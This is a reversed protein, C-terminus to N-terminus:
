ILINVTYIYVGKLKKIEETTRSFLNIRPQKGAILSGDSLKYSNVHGFGGEGLQEMFDPFEAMRIDSIQDLEEKTMLSELNLRRRTTMM